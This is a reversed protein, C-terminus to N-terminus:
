SVTAPTPTRWAKSSFIHILNSGYGVVAYIRGDPGVTVGTIGKFTGRIPQEETSKIEMVLKGQLNLKIIREEAKHAAYIYEVGYEEQIELSHSGAYQKGLSRLYKGDTSFVAIGRDKDTTVYVNNNKDIAVGGHTSGMENGDAFTQWHTNIEFRHQGNGTVVTHEKAFTTSAAVAILAIPFLLKNPFFSKKM